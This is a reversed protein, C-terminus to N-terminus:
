PKWNVGQPHYEAMNERLEILGKKILRWATTDAISLTKATEQITKGQLYYYELALRQREQLSHMMVKLQFTLAKKTLRSELTRNATATRTTDLTEQRNRLLTQKRWFDKLAGRIRINILSRFNKDPNRRKKAELLAVLAEQVADEREEHSLTDYPLSRNCVWYVMKEMEKINTDFM